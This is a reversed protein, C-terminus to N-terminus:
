LRFLKLSLRAAARASHRCNPTAQYQGCNPLCLSTRMRRVAGVHTNILGPMLVGGGGDVKIADDGATADVAITKILNGEVLVSTTDSLKNNVGDFVRVDSILIQQPAKDKVDAMVFGANSIMLIAAMLGAVLLRTALPNRLQKM